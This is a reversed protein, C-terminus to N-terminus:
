LPVCEAWPSFFGSACSVPTEFLGGWNTLCTRVCCVARSPPAPCCSCGCVASWCLHWSGRSQYVARPPPQGHTSWISDLLRKSSPAISAPVVRELPPPPWSNRCSCAPPRCAPTTAAVRVAHLSINAEFITPLNAPVECLFSAQVIIVHMCAHLQFANNIWVSCLISEM